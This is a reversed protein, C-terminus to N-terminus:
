SAARVDREIGAAVRGALDDVARSMAAVLADDGNGEIAEVLSAQEATLVHRTAGDLITWRAVLVVHHDPRAEFAAVDVLIQRTPHGLPTATVVLAPLRAALSATLARTIGVSLREGWRGTPSPVLQNGRRELIDTTDLYDPLQIRKVEVVPLGTQSLTTATAAPMAGLVYEAPPPGSLSCATIACMAAGFFALVAVPFFRRGPCLHVAAQKM